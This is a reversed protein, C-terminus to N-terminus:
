SECLKLKLKAQKLKACNLNHHGDQCCKTVAIVSSCGVLAAAPAAVDANGRTARDVVILEDIYVGFKTPLSLREKNNAHWDNHGRAVCVAPHNYTYAAKAAKKEETTLPVKTAVRRPNGQNDM